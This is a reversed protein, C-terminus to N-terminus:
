QSRIHEYLDSRVVCTLMADSFHVASVLPACLCGTTVSYMSVSFSSRLVRIIDLRIIYIYIYIYVYMCVCVCVCM